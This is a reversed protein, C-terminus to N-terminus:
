DSVSARLREYANSIAPLYLSHAYALDKGALGMAEADLRRQDDFAQKATPIHSDDNTFYVHLLCADVGRERLFHLHALRNAYQYCHTDIWVSAYTENVSLSKRTAALADSIKQRSDLAAETGSKGAACPSGNAIEPINAKAEVLVVGRDSRGLADWHAGGTPWFEALDEALAGQGIRELFAADWYEAFGDEALPSTWQVDSAGTALDGIAHNLKEPVLNVYAAM